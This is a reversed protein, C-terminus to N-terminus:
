PRLNALTSVDHNGPPFFDWIVLRKDPLFSGALSFARWSVTSEAVAKSLRILENLFRDLRQANIPEYHDSHDLLVTQGTERLFRTADEVLGKVISASANPDMWQDPFAPNRLRAGIKRLRRQVSARYNEDDILYTRIIKLQQRDWAPNLPDHFIVEFREHPTIDARLIDSADFGPGVVEIDIKGDDVDCVSTLSFFDSYPSAPELLIATMGDRALNEVLNGVDQLPITYGGRRRTWRQGPKEIRILLESFARKRCFQITAEEGEPFWGSLILGSLAQFRNAHLWLLSSSKWCGQLAALASALNEATVNKTEFLTKGKFSAISTM